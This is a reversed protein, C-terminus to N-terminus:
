ICIILAKKHLLYKDLNNINLIKIRFYTAMIHLIKYFREDLAQGIGYMQTYFNFLYSSGSYVGVFFREKKMYYNLPLYALNQRLHLFHDRSLRSWKKQPWFQEIRPESMTLTM